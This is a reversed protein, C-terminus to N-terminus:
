VSTKPCIHRFVGETAHVTRNLIDAVDAVPLDDLYRLPLVSRHQPTLKEDFSLLVAEVYVPVYPGVIEEIPSTLGFVRPAPVRPPAARPGSKRMGGRGPAR